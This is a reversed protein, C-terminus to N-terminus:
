GDTEAVAVVVQGGGLFHLRDLTRHWRWSEARYFCLDTPVPSDRLDAAHSGPPFAAAGARLPDPSGAWEEVPVPMTWPEGTNPTFWRTAATVLSAPDAGTASARRVAEEVVHVVNLLLAPLSEALLVLEPEERLADAGGPVSVVYGWQGTAPDIRVHALSVSRPARGVRALPWYAGGDGRIMRDLAPDVRQWPEGPMLRLAPMGAVRVEGVARLVTRVDPPVPVPWRDLEADATGDALTVLRPFRRALSRLGSVATAAADDPVRHRRVPRGLFDGSVDSELLLVRGGGAFRYDVDSGSTDATGGDYTFYPEWSIACPYGPLDRLDAVDLLSHGAGVIAALEADPGEAAEISPVAAIAFPPAAAGGADDHPTGGALRRVLDDLWPVFGPAEVTFAYEDVHALSLVPGWDATGAGTGTLVDGRPTLAWTADESASRVRPHGSPGFAYRQRGATVGGLARLVVRVAEPVEVPWGDLEADPFGDLLTLEGPRRAALERLAAVVAGAAASVDRGGHGEYTM